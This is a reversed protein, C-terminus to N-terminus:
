AMYKETLNLLNRIGALPTDLGEFELSYIGKFGAEQMVRMSAPFNDTYFKGKDAIGDKSHCINSAYPALMRLQSLAFDASRTAFNGFDPCTGTRDPGLQKIVAVLTEASERAIDDNHFLVKVGRAHAVDVFPKLNRAATTPIASGEGTLAVTISPCGLAAAVNVWREAEKTVAQRDTHDAFVGGPLQVDMLNCCRSNAKKLGTKVKDITSPETDVFHQSLFEVNHIKFNEALFQPFEEQTLLPYKTDRYEHMRPTDFYARFPWSNSALRDLKGSSSKQLAWAPVSSLLSATMAGCLFDRRKVTM